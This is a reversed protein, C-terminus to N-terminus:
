RTINSDSNKKRGRWVTRWSTQILSTWSNRNLSFPLLIKLAHRWFHHWFCVCVGGGLGDHVCEARLGSVCVSVCSDPRQPLFWFNPLRAFLKYSFLHFSPLPLPLALPTKPFFRNWACCFLERRFIRSKRKPEKLSYTEPEIQSPSWGKHPTAKPERKGKM